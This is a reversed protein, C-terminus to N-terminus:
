DANEQAQNILQWLRPPSVPLERVQVNLSALAASIANCIAGAVAVLGGEGAGKAGLPNGPAPALNLFEGRINPFDSATPLLYDAFSATLLQGAEDYLLRELFVGGLGQVIAGESQGHAVLPNLITGIDEIAVFDLIKVRGTRPDVAVHAANTGYSFPKRTENVFTDTIDIIQGKAALYSALVDLTVKVDSGEQSFTRDNWSLEANPRGLYEIAAARLSELFTQATQYVANGSMVASRSHFSGVGAELEDTSACKVRIKELPLGLVDACVQSFVTEHGQGSNTAGVFLDLTGDEALRIRAQETKGGAGSESFCSLGVGHYWGDVERGQIAQLEDWRIEKLASEFLSPYDGSDFEAAPEYTTLKGMNFPMEAPTVFNRRRIDARDINLDAAAMDILRERFFHAEFRGPGRYTGSPTKNSFYANVSCTYNPIRYPGPLFQGCRAPATSGTGRAYAGLDVVVHGRLGQIIGTRDCAIELDCYTERAHNTAMFHERRDEVWKVPRNLKRALFPILFDEPYFEGRVGFSGGADGVKMIVSHEPLELMRSLNLRNFFPIKTAGYVTMTEATADWHALLGRTEMPMATHRQISFRERRTYHATSFAQDTNGRGIFNGTINAGVAEHIFEKGEAAQAWTLIPPLEDIGVSILSLADEALYPSEAIVVAIPEGVYRVKEIALPIQLFEEFRPLGAVRIQIPKLHGAFDRGTFVGVVGPLAEAESAEIRRIRGHAVSSRFVAAHLMGEIHFDDVYAGRGQLLRVDEKRPIPAGIFPNV